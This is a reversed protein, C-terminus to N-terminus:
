VASSYRIIDTAAAPRRRQLIAAEGEEVTSQPRRAHLLSNYLLMFYIVVAHCIYTHVITAAGQHPDNSLCQKATQFILRYYTHPDFASANCIDRDAILACACVLPENCKFISIIFFISFSHSNDIYWGCMCGLWSSQRRARSSSFLIWSRHQDM